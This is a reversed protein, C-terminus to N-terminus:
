VEDVLGITQRGCVDFEHPAGRRRPHRKCRCAQLQWFTKHIGFWGILFLHGRFICDRAIKGVLCREDPSGVEHQPAVKEMKYRANELEGLFDKLLM